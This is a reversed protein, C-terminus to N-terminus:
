NIKCCDPNPWKVCWLSSKTEHYCRRCVLSLVPVCVAVSPPRAPARSQVSGEAVALVSPLSVVRSVRGRRRACLPCLKGTGGLSASCAPVCLVSSCPQWLPISM